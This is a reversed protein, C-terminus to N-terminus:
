WRLTTSCTSSFPRTWMRAEELVQQASALQQRSARCAKGRASGSDCPATRDCEAPSFHSSSVRHVTTLAVAQCQYNKKKKRCERSQGLLIFVQRRCATHYRPHGYRCMARYVRASQKHNPLRFITHTKDPRLICSASNKNRSESETGDQEKTKRTRYYTSCYTGIRLHNFKCKDDKRTHKCSVCECGAGEWGKEREENTTPCPVEIM